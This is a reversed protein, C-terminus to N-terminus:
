ALSLYNRVYQELTPNGNLTLIPKGAPRTLRGQRCIM